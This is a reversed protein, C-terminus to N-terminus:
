ITGKTMTDRSILYVVRAIPRSPTISEFTTDNGKIREVQNYKQGRRVHVVLQHISFSHGKGSSHYVEKYTGSPLQSDTSDNSNHAGRVKRGSSYAASGRGSDVNSSCQGPKDYDSSAGSEATLKKNGKAEDVGQRPNKQDVNYVGEIKGIEGELRKRPGGMLAEPIKNDKHYVTDALYCNFTTESNAFTVQQLVTSM